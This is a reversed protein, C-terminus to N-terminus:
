EPTVRHPQPPDQLAWSGAAGLAAGRGRQWTQHKGPLTAAGLVRKEQRELEPNLFFPPPPPPLFVLLRSSVLLAQLHPCLCCSQQASMSSLIKDLPAAHCHPPLASDTRHRGGEGWIGLWTPPAVTSCSVSLEGRTVARWQQRGQQEGPPCLKAGFAASPSM